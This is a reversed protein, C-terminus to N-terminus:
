AEEVLEEWVLRSVEALRRAGDVEDTLRKSMLAIVYPGNPAYVIGVDNRIGKLSGTKHAVETGEPLHLPIITNYKQHKLTETVATRSAPALGYGHEIQALLNALDAPTSIINRSDDAYAVGDLDRRGTHMAEVLAEYTTAPDTPEMGTSACFIGRCGFPIVTQALNLEKLVTALRDLGVIGLLMDTAQNDSVIIMLEALDRVTPALGLELNQLIGSGPVRHHSEITVRRSLDIEGDDALRHLAYLLPVKFTSASPFIDHENHGLERGTTLHRARLGVTGNLSALTSRVRLAFPHESTM